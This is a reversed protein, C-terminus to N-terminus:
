LQVHMPNNIIYKRFTLNLFTRSTIGGLEKDELLITRGVM